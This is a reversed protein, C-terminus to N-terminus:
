ELRKWCNKNINNNKNNKLLRHFKGITIEAFKAASKISNFSQTIIGGENYYVVTIGKFCGIKSMDLPEINNGQFSYFFRYGRTQFCKNRLNHSIGSVDIQLDESAQMLSGFTKIFNGSIDYVWTAVASPNKDGKQQRVTCNKVIKIYNEPTHKYSSIGRGGDTHNVLSGLGKDRRGYLAIFEIEKNEVEERDDSEFLIDIQHETKSVISRWFKNTHKSYARHYESTHKKYYEKNKGGIGIYFPENKDLRIHRYVYYKGM